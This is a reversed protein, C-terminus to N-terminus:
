RRSGRKLDSPKLANLVSQFVQQQLEINLVWELADIAGVMEDRLSGAPVQDIRERLWDVRKQVGREDRVAM